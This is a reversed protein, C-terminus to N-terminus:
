STHWSGVPATIAIAEAANGDKASAWVARGPYDPPWLYLDADNDAFLMSMNAQFTDGTLMPFLYVKSEGALIFDNPKVYNVVVSKPKLSVNKAADAAWVDIWRAGSFYGFDYSYTKAAGESYAMWGTEDTALWTQAAPFYEYVVFDVWATGASGVDHAQVTIPTTGSATLPASVSDV